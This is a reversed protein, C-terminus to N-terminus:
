EPVDICARITPSAQVCTFIGCDEDTDCSALCFQDGSIDEVCVGGFGCNEDVTCQSTCIGPSVSGAPLQLCRRGSCGLVSDNDTPDCTELFFEGGLEGTCEDDVCRAFPAACDSNTICEDGSEQQGETVEDCEVPNMAVGSELQAYTGCVEDGLASVCLGANAGDFIQRGDNVGGITRTQCSASFVEVCSDYDDIGFVANARRVDPDAFCRYMWECLTENSERCWGPLTLPEVQEVDDTADVVDTLDTGADESTGSSEGDDGCGAAFVLTAAILAFGSIRRVLSPRAHLADLDADLHTMTLALEPASGTQERAVM